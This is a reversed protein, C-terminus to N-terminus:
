NFNNQPSSYGSLLFPKLCKIAGNNIMKLIVENKRYEKEIITQLLILYNRSIDGKSGDFSLYRSASALDSNLDLLMIEIAKQEVLIKILNENLEVAGTLLSTLHLYIRPLYSINDDAHINFEKTMKLKNMNFWWEVIKNEIMIKFFFEHFPFSIESNLYDFVYRINRFVLQSDIEKKTGKEIIKLTEIIMAENKKEEEQPEAAKERDFLPSDVSRIGARTKSRRM